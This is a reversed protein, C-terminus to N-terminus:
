CVEDWWPLLHIWCCLLQQTLRSPSLSSCKGLGLGTELKQKNSSTTRWSEFAWFFRPLCLLRGADPAWLAAAISLPQCLSSASSAPKGGLPARLALHGPAMIWCALSCPASLSSAFPLSPPQL